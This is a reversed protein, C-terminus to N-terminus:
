RRAGRREVTQLAQYLRRSRRRLSDRPSSSSVFVSDLANRVRYSIWRRLLKSVIGM